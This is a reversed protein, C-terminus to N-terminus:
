VEGCGQHNLKGLTGHSLDAGNTVPKREEGM